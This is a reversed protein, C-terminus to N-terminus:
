TYIVSDIQREIGARHHRAGAQRAAGVLAQKTQYITFFTTLLVIALVGGALSPKM